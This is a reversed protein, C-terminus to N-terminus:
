TVKPLRGSDILLASAINILQWNFQRWILWFPDATVAGPSWNQYKRKNNFSKCITNFWRSTTIFNCLCPSVQCFGLVMGMSRMVGACILRFTFITFSLYVYNLCCLDLDLPCISSLPLDIWWDSYKCMWRKKDVMLCFLDRESVFPNLFSPFSLICRGVTQQRRCSHIPSPNRVLQRQHHHHDFGQM